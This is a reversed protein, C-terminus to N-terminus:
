HEEAALAHAANALMVYDAVSLTEARRMPDIGLATLQPADLLAGVANRLTKRRQGFAERVLRALMPASTVQGAPFVRPRLRVLASMVRPRPQFSEPPVEFLPEVACRYQVMVSLRGYNKSDPAAALREVVERQLLFHMDRVCNAQDLLHFLLPTSINYPLNGVVRLTDAAPTLPTLQFDLADAIHVQLRDNQRAQWRAGLRVSFVHGVM